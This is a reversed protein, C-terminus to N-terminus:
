EQPGDDGDMDDTPFDVDALDIREVVAIDERVPTFCADCLDIFEGSREYKRTAEHSGLICNCSLCRM